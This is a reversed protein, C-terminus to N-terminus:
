RCSDLLAEVAPCHAADGSASCQMVMGALASRMAKLDRMRADVLALKAVALERTEACHRGSGVALLTAIEELSFGLGQARKIFRLRRVDDAGYRRISGYARRPTPVLSERQYYRVTEVHVGAAAALQGITLLDRPSLTKADVNM